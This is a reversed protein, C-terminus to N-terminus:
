VYPIESNATILLSAICFDTIFFVFVNFCFDFLTINMKRILLLCCKCITVNLETTGARNVSRGVAIFLKTINSERNM